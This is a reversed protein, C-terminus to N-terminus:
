SELHPHCNTTPISTSVKSLCGYIKEVRTIADKAYTSIEYTWMDHDAHYKYDNRSYYKRTGHEKIFFISAMREIWIDPCKVVVKFDDMHTCIYDYENKSDHIRMWIDRNFCNPAFGLTRLFDALLTIFCETSTVLGYLAYM